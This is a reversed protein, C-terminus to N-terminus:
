EQPSCKTHGPFSYIKKHLNSLLLMKAVTNLGLKLKNERERLDARMKYHLSLPM